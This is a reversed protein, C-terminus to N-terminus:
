KRGGGPRYRSGKRNGVARPVARALLGNHEVLKSGCESCLQFDLFCVGVGAGLPRPNELEPARPELGKVAHLVVASTEVRNV